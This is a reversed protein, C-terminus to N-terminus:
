ACGDITAVSCFGEEDHGEYWGKVGGVGNHTHQSAYTVKERWHGDCEYVGRKILMTQPKGEIGCAEQGETATARGKYIQGGEEDVHM